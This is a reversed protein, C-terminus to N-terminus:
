NGTKESLFQILKEFSKKIYSDKRKGSLKGVIVFKTKLVRFGARNLCDILFTENYIHKTKFSIYPYIDEGGIHNQNMGSCSSTTNFGMDNIIRLYNLIGVDVEVTGSYDIYIVDTNSFPHNRFLDNLDNFIEEKMSEKINFTGIEELINFAIRKLVMKFYKYSIKGKVSSLVKLIFSIENISFAIKSVQNNRLKNIIEDITHSTSNQSRKDAFSLFKILFHKYVHSLELWIIANM